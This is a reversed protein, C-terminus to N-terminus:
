NENRKQVETNPSNNYHIDLSAFPRIISSTAKPIEM